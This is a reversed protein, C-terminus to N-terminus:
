IARIAELIDEPAMRRRFDAEVFSKVIRGDKGVVCTAPIPVLWGSNGQYVALDIGLETLNSKVAEGCWVALDVSLSYGNDVDCLVPFELKFSKKFDKAFAQRDPTIAVISAGLDAVAQNIDQLARLERQCFACWSGRNMSVVLPGKKLLDRSSVLRGSDDPLLFPLFDDGVALATRGAGANVLREIMNSYADATAPKEEELYKAFRLLYDALNRKNAM